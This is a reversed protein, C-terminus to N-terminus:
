CDYTHWKLLSFNKPTLFQKLVISKDITHFVNKTAVKEYISLLKKGYANQHYHYRIKDNNNGILSVPQDIHGPRSLFPNLRILTKRNTENELVGNILRRQSAEDLLGFDIIGSITLEKYANEIDQPHISLGFRCFTSEICTKWNNYFAANDFGDMPVTIQDYLHDLNIGNVAFDRCIDTLKRGWLLKGATWPQLFSFGFGESISTTIVSHCSQLLTNFDKNIGAEFDVNLGLRHVENKWDYYSAFDAPSNPPLTIALSQGKEFFLSILIAEGINKRRIARVPYLVINKRMSSKEKNDFFPVSNPLMHLGDEKLGASHLIQYDRSNIVSYHCDSPYPQRYYVQPRGDESFDHIQLLLKTGLKQLHAFIKLFQRNKALTPNHVHVVDCGDPWMSYINDLIEMATKEPRDSSVIDRDYAIGPVRIVPCPLSTAAPDGTIVMVDCQDQIAAVQQRIVTTVGGPKLHYHIIVIKLYNFGRNQHVM